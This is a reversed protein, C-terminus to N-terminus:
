SPAPPTEMDSPMLHAPPVWPLMSLPGPPPLSPSAGTGEEMGHEERCVLLHTSVLAHLHEHLAGLESREVHAEGQILTLPPLAPM